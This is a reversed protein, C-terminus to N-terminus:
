IRIEQCQFCMALRAAERAMKSAAHGASNGSLFDHKGLSSLRHTNLEGLAHRSALSQAYQALAHLRNQDTPKM